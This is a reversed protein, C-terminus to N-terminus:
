KIPWPNNKEYELMEEKTDFYKMPYKDHQYEGEIDSLYTAHNEDNILLGNNYANTCIDCCHTNPRFVRKGIRDFFWQERESLKRM